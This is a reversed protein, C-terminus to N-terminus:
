GAMRHGGSLDAYLAVLATQPPKDTRHAMYNWGLKRALLAVTEAHAKFRARYEGAV